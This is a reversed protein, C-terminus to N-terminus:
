GIKEAVSVVGPAALGILIGTAISIDIVGVQVDVLAVVIGVLVAFPIVVAKWYEKAVVLKVFQVFGIIAAGIFITSEVM